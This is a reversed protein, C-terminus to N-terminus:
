NRPTGRRTISVLEGEFPNNLERVIFKNMPGLGLCLSERIRALYCYYDVIRTIDGDYFEWLRRVFIEDCIPAYFLRQMVELLDEFSRKDSLLDMIEFCSLKCDRRTVSVVLSSPVQIIFIKKANNVIDFMLDGHDQEFELVSRLSPIHRTTSIYPSNRSCLRVYAPRCPDFSVDQGGGDLHMVVCRAINEPKSLYSRMDKGYEYKDYFRRFPAVLEEESDCFRAVMITNPRHPLCGTQELFTEHAETVERFRGDEGGPDNTVYFRVLPLFLPPRKRGRVFRRLRKPYCKPLQRRAGLTIM